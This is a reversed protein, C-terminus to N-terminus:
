AIERSFQTAEAAFRQAALHPRGMGVACARRSATSRRANGVFEFTM